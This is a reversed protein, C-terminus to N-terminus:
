EEKFNQKLLVSKTLTAPSEALFSEDYAIVDYGGNNGHLLLNIWDICVKAPHM